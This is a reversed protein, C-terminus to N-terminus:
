DRPDPGTVRGGDSQRPTLRVARIRIDSGDDGTFTFPLLSPRDPFRVADAQSVSLDGSPTVYSAGIKIMYM